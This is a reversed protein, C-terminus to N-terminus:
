KVMCSFFIVKPLERRLWVAVKLRMVKIANSSLWSLFPPTLPWNCGSHLECRIAIIDRPDRFILVGEECVFGLVPPFLPASLAM